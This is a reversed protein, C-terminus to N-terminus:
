YNQMLEKVYDAYAPRALLLQNKISALTEDYYGDSIIVPLGACNEWIFKADEIMLRICGHSAADGLAKYATQSLSSAAYQNFTLSHFCINGSIQTCYIVWCDHLPFYYWPNGQTRYTLPRMYFTGNPTLSVPNGTSCLFHRLVKTNGADDKGYVLVMQMAKNVEVYSPMYSDKPLTLTLQGPAYSPLVEFCGKYGLVSAYPEAPIMVDGGEASIYAAPNPYPNKDVFMVPTGLGQWIERGEHELYISLDAYNYTLKCKFIARFDEISIYFNGLADKEVAHSAPLWEGDLIYWPSDAHLIVSGGGEEIPAASVPLFGMLLLLALLLLGIRKM